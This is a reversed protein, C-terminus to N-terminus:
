SRQMQALVEVHETHPFMDFAHLSAIDFDPALRAVDRALSKPNCSVLILTRTCVQRMWEAAGGLGARPPDAIVFASPASGLQPLAAAVDGPAVRLRTIGAAAVGARLSAISPGSVEVATGRLGRAALPLAFNGCGAYLDLFETAREQTACGVVHRVLQANVQHNVQLFAGLAVHVEVGEAVYRQMPPQGQGLVGVVTRADLRQQLARRAAELHSPLEAEARLAAHPALCVSAVGHSDKGRVELWAFARLQDPHEAAVARLEGITQHLSPELVTCDVSKEPNFFGIQGADIRLRLRNRYARTPGVNWDPEPAPVDMARFADRVRALKLERQADPARGMLPCGGCREQVPCHVRPNSVM